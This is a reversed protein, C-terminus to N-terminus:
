NRQQNDRSQEVPEERLAYQEDTDICVNEHKTIPTADGTSGYRREECASVRRDCIMRTIM